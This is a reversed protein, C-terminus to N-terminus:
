NRGEEKKRGNFCRLFYRMKKGERKQRIRVRTEKESNHDPGEKWTFVIASRFDGEKRVDYM